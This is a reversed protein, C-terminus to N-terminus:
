DKPRRRLAFDLSGQGEDGLELRPREGQARALLFLQQLRGFVIGGGTVPSALCGIDNGGRAQDCIFANIRDTRPKAAAIADDDQVPVLAGANGLVLLRYDRYHLAPPILGSKM